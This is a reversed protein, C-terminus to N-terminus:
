KPAHVHCFGSASKARNRCAKGNKCIAQCAGGKSSAAVVPSAAVSEAGSAVPSMNSLAVGGHSGCFTDGYKSMNACPEGNKYHGQCTGAVISKDRHVGCFCGFSAKNRCTSGDAKTKQCIPREAYPEALQALPLTLLQERTHKYPWIYGWRSYEEPMGDFYALLEPPIKGQLNDHCYDLPSKQKLQAMHSYHVAPCDIWYPPEANPDVDPYPQYVTNIKRELCEKLMANSYLKLSDLNNAWSRTAPHNTWGKKGAGTQLAIVADVLQRSEVVQKFCRRADLLKATWAFNPHVLFTNVM